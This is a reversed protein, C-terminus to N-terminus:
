AVRPTSALGVAQAARQLMVGASPAITSAARAAAPPAAEMAAQVPTVEAAKEPEPPPPTHAEVETYAALSGKLFANLRDEAHTCVGAAKSVTHQHAKHAATAAKAATDAEKAVATAATCAEEM